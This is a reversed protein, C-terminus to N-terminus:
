AYLDSLPSYQHSPPPPSLLLVTLMVTVPINVENLGEKQIELSGLQDCKLRKCNKLTTWITRHDQLTRDKRHHLPISDSEAASLLRSGGVECSIEIFIAVMNPATGCSGQGDM